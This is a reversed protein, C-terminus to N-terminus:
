PRGRIKALVRGFFGQSTPQNDVAAFPAIPPPTLIATIQAEHKERIQKNFATRQETEGCGPCMYTEREFGLVPKTWDEIADLLVMERGCEICRMPDRKIEPGGSGLM